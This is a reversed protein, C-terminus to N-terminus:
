APASLSGTGPSPRSRSGRPAAWTWRTSSRTPCAWANWRLRRHARESRDPRIRRRRRSRAGRDRVLLHSSCSSALLSCRHWTEETCAHKPRGGRRGAGTRRERYSFPTPHSRASGGYCLSLYAAARARVMSSPTHPRAPGARREEINSPVQYPHRKRSLSLRLRLSSSVDYPLAYWAVFFLSDHCVTRAGGEWSGRGGTGDWHRVCQRRRASAVADSPSVARVIARRVRRRLCLASMPVLPKRPTHTGALLPLAPVRSRAVAEHPLDPATNRSPAALAVDVHWHPPSTPEGHLQSRHLSRHLALFAM